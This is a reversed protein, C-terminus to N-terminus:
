TRKRWVEVLRWAVLRDFRLQAPYHASHGTQPDSKIPRGLQSEVYDVLQYVLLYGEFGGDTLEDYDRVFPQCGREWM